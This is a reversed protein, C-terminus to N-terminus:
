HKVLGFEDLNEIDCGPKPDMGMIRCGFIGFRKGQLGKTNCDASMKGTPCCVTELNGRKAQDTIM